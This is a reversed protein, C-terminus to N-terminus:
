PPQRDTQDRPRGKVALIEPKAGPVPQDQHRVADGFAGAAIADIEALLTQREAQRPRCPKSARRQKLSQDPVQGGMGPM